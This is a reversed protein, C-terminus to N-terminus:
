ESQHLGYIQTRMSDLNGILVTYHYEYVCNKTLREKKVPAIYSTSNDTAEKDPVGALGALFKTCNPNYVAMGWGADDTFAMWHESVDPYIGWFGSSLNVVKLEETAAHTFPESGKYTVLHKLASIPYVAPLEQDCTISDGYIKDTRHVTLKNRVRLLNGDLTTWQEMEAEAPKNNMDWQMPICKVYLENGEKKHDLIQARNRFADGVQIPNWCWPSWRPAQGDAKRDLSKGAYYSQQIYRGEDAINVVSRDSGSLSLWSIAGGRTLDLKLHLVGNDATLEEQSKHLVMEDQLQGERDYFHFTLSTPTVTFLSYNQLLLPENKQFPYHGPFVANARVVAQYPNAFKQQYMKSCTSGGILYVTGFQNVPVVKGDNAAADYKMPFSRFYYHDHGTIVVDVKCSDFLPGLVKRIETENRNAGYIPQHMTVIKWRGPQSAKMLDKVLWDSASKLYRKDGSKESLTIADELNQVDLCVLHASGYDFSYSSGEAYLGTHNSPNNFYNLYAKNEQQPGTIEIGGTEHNGVNPAFLYQRFFPQGAEYFWEWERAFSGRNVMDGAHMIFRIDPHAEFAKQLIPRLNAQYRERSSEQSDALFLFKVTEASERSPATTFNGESWNKGDGAKYRYTTASSLGTLTAKHVSVTYQRGKGPQQENLQALVTTGRARIVKKSAFGAPDEKEVCEVLSPLTKADTQWTMSVSTAPNEGMSLFLPYPHNSPLVQYSVPDSTLQEKAAKLQLDVASLNLSESVLRGNKNTTGIPENGNFLTAGEVPQGTKVLTVTLTATHHCLNDKGEVWKIKLDAAELFFAQVMGLVLFLLSKMKM